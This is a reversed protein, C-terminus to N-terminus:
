CLGPSSRTTPARPGSRRHLRQQQRGRRRRGGERTRSPGRLLHPQHGRRPPHHQLPHQSEAPRPVPGQAGKVKAALANENNLAVIYQSKLSDKVSGTNEAIQRDIEDIKAKLQVMASYEPKFTKLKEQYDASLTARQDRLTDMTKSNQLEPLGLGKTTQAQRWRQEALIRAQQAEALARNTADLDSATLSQGGNGSPDDKTAGVTGVNIIQQSTAYAALERESDELKQRVQAIRSNLFDRAFASAEYRRELNAQIFDASVANAIKAAMGPDTDEYNVVVLKSARVPDIHLGRALKDAAAEIRAARQAEPSMAAAGAQARMNRGAKGLFAKNDELDLGKVVREALSRSKLLGYQTQFFEADQLSGVPEVGQVNVIKPADREIQLTAGSRYVPTTLLTTVLGLLLGAVTAGLVLWKWKSAIRWFMLLQSGLRSESEHRWDLEDGFPALERGGYGVAM